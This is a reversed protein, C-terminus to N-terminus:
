NKVTGEYEIYDRDDPTVRISAKGANQIVIYFSYKDSGYSTNFTIIGRRKDPDLQLQYDEMESKFDLRSDLRAEAHTKPHPVDDRGAYPLDCTVSNGEVKVWHSFVNRSTGRMPRMSTINITYQQTGVAERVHEVRAAERAAKEEPSLTACGALLLTAVIM